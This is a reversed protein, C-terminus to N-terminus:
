TQTTKKHKTQEGKQIGHKLEGNGHFMGNLFEGKYNFNEGHYIGYGNNCDGSKCQSISIFPISLFLIIIKVKM